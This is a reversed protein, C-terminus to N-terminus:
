SAEVVLSRILVTSARGWEWGPEIGALARVVVEVRVTGQGPDIPFGVTLWRSPEAVDRRLVVTGDVRVLLELRGRNFGHGYLSRLELVARRAAGTRPVEVWVTAEQLAGPDDTDFELPVFPGSPVARSEGTESQMTWGRCGPCVAVDAAVDGYVVFRGITAAPDESIATVRAPLREIWVTRTAPTPGGIPLAPDYYVALAEGNRVTLPMVDNELGPGLVVTLPDELDALEGLSETLALLDPAHSWEVPRDAIRVATVGIAAAAVSAAVAIRRHGSLRPLITALGGLLPALALVIAVLFRESFLGLVPSVLSSAYLMSFQLAVIGGLARVSRNARHLVIVTVAGALLLPATRLLSAPYYAIRTQLSEITGYDSSFSTFSRANEKVFFLPDGTVALNYGVWVLPIVAACAIIALRPLASRLRAVWASRPGMEVLALVVAWAGALAWGEYRCAAAVSVSGAAAVLWRLRATRLWALTTASVGAVALYYIPEGLGSLSTFVAWPAFLAAAFALLGGSISRWLWHASWGVIAAAAIAAVTNVIATLLMPNARFSGGVAMFALGNIWTPAPLWVLDGGPAFEPDIAWHRALQVRTFDDWTLASWGPEWMVVALWVRGVLLVLVGVL